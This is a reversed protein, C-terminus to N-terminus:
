GPTGEVAAPNWERLVEPVVVPVLVQRQRDTLELRAFVADLLRGVSTGLMRAVDIAEAQAGANVAARCAELYHKREDNYARLIVNLGAEEVREIVGGDRTVERTTGWWLGGTGTQGTELDTQGPEPHTQGGADRNTRSEIELVLGRLAAVHGASWRVEDLLGESPSIDLPRGYTRAIEALGDRRAAALSKGAHHYCAGTGKVTREHCCGGPPPPVGKPHDCRRRHHSCELRAHQDCWRAGGTPDPPGITGTRDPLIAAGGLGLSRSAKAISDAARRQIALAPNEVARDGRTIMVNTQALLRSAQRHSRVAEVYTTLVEPDARFIRGGATLRDITEAWIGRREDDFHDPPTLRRPPQPTTM